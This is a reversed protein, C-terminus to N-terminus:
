RFLSEAGPPYPSGLEEVKKFSSFHFRRSFASLSLKKQLPHPRLHPYPTNEPIPRCLGELTTYHCSHARVGRLGPNWGMEHMTTLFATRRNHTNRLRQNTWQRCHQPPPPCSEIKSSIVTRFIFTLLRNRWYQPFHGGRYVVTGWPIGRVGRDGGM